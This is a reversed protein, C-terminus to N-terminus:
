QMFSTRSSLLVVAPHEKHSSASSKILSRSARAPIDRTWNGAVRLLRSVSMSDHCRRRSRIFAVVLDNRAVHSTFFSSGDHDRDANECAAFSQQDNDGVPSRLAAVLDVRQM